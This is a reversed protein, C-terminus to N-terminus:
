FLKEYDTSMNVYMFMYFSVPVIINQTQICVAYMQTYFFRVRNHSIKSHKTNKCLFFTQSRITHILTLKM